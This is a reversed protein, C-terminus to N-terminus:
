RSPPYKKLKRQLSRRDIGLLRAAASINGGTEAMVRHIHEWEVKGLSPVDESFDKHTEEGFLAREVQDTDAPKTLYDHAGLQVAEVASAISGFGTLVVIRITSNHEVLRPILAMGSEGKVRLDLLAHTVTETELACQAEQCSSAGVVEHGRKKLARTLRGRFSDDDELFLIQTSSKIM